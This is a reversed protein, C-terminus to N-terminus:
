ASYPFGTGPVPVELFPALREWGERRCLNMRLLAEPRSRFHEDVEAHHRRYVRAFSEPDFRSVGFLEIGYRAWPGGPPRELYWNRCSELWEDLDRLTLVFRSSPFRRDLEKYRTTAPMQCLGRYKRLAHDLLDERVWHLSPIAMLNLARALSATGTRPLGIGFVKPAGAEPPM